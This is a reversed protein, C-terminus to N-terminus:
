KAADRGYSYPEYTSSRAQWLAQSDFLSGCGGPPAKIVMSNGLKQLATHSTQLLTISARPKDSTFDGGKALGRGPRM